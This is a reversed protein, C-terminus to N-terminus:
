HYLFKCGECPKPIINNKINQILNDTSVYNSIDKITRCPLEIGDINYFRMVKTKLFHCIKISNTSVRNPILTEPYVSKYDTKTQLPQSFFRIKLRQALNKVDTLDQGYDVNLITIQTYGINILQKINDIVKDINHRGIQEAEVVNITDISVFINSIHEKILLRNTENLTSGNTVFTIKHHYPKIYNVMDWFKPHLLPEGEGHLSFEHIANDNLYPDVINKFQQLDMFKNPYKSTYCYVCDFNCYTTVEIQIIM